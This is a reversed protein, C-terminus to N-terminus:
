GAIMALGHGKLFLSQRRVREADQGARRGASNGASCTAAVEGVSIVLIAGSVRHESSEGTTHEATKPALAIVHISAAGTLYWTSRDAPGRAGTSRGAPGRAGTGFGRRIDSGTLGVARDPGFIEYPGGSKRRINRRAAEGTTM